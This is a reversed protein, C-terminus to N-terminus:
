RILLYFVFFSCAVASALLLYSAQLYHHFYTHPLTCTESLQPTPIPIHLRIMSEMMTFFFRMTHNRSPITINIELFWFGSSQFCSFYCSPHSPMNSVLGLNTNIWWSWVTKIEDYFYCSFSSWGYMGMGMKMHLGGVCASLATHYTHNHPSCPPSGTPLSYRRVVGSM